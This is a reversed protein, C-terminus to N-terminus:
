EDIQGYYLQTVYKYEVFGNKQYKDFVRKLEDHFGAYTKLRQEAAERM